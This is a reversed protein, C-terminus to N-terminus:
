VGGQAYDMYASVGPGLSKASSIAPELNCGRENKNYIPQKATYWSAM